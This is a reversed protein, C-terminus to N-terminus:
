IDRYRFKIKGEFLFIWKNCKLIQSPSFRQCIDQSSIFSLVKRRAVTGCIRNIMMKMMYGYVTSFVTEWSFSYIPDNNVSVLPSGIPLSLYVGIGTFLSKIYLNEQSMYNLNKFIRM